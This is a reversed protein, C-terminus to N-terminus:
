KLEKKEIAEQLANLIQYDRPLADNMAQKTAEYVADFVVSYDGYIVGGPKQNLHNEFAEKVGNKVAEFYRDRLAEFYRDDM